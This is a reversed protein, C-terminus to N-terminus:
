KTKEEHERKKQEKKRKELEKEYVKEFDLGSFFGKGDIVIDKNNSERRM